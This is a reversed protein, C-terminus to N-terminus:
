FWDAEYQDTDFDPTEAASTDSPVGIQAAQCMCSLFCTGLHWPALIRLCALPALASLHVIAEEVTIPPPRRSAATSAADAAAARGEQCQLHVFCCIGLHWPALTSLFLM